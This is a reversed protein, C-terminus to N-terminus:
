GPRGKLLDGKKIRAQIWPMLWLLLAVAASFLSVGLGLRFSFPNFVFRIQYIGAPLFVSRLLYDTQFVKWPQGNVTAEWDPHFAESLVVFGPNKMVANIIVMNATRRVIKASSDDQLPAEKLRQMILPIPPSQLVVVQDLRPRLLNIIQFARKEDPQFVARHAIFVRPFANPREYIKVERDYVKKLRRDIDEFHTFPRQYRDTAHRIIYRV